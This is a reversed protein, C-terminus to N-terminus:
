LDKDEIVQLTKLEYVTTLGLACELCLMVGGGL